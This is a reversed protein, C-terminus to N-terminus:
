VSYWAIGEYIWGLDILNDREEESMTFHWAGSTGNNWANPNHLRYMARGFNEDASPFAIGETTWGQAELMNKEDVDRTYLHDGHESNYLRYIADGITPSIFGAGEFNWGANVLNLAEEQSGTYFHEGNNPNYLRYQFVCGEPAKFQSFDIQEKNSDNSSNCEVTLYIPILESAYDTYYDANRKESFVELTYDGEELEAPITVDINGSTSAGSISMDAIRGYRIMNGYSDLLIASIYEGTGLNAGSYTITVRDGAAVSGSAGRSASFARSKDLLTLKWASVAMDTTPITVLADAGVIGSPKGDVAASTFIVSSLNINFAPRVGFSNSVPFGYVVVRGVSDVVAVTRASSGPSRLWYGNLEENYIGRRYANGLIDAEKTSLPWLFAKNNANDADSIGDSLDYTFDGPNFIEKFAEAYLRREQIVGREKETFISEIYNPATGYYADIVSKIDSSMYANNSRNTTYTIGSALNDLSLLTMTGSECVVGSGDYGITLWKHKGDAGYYVVPATTVRDRRGKDYTDEESTLTPILISTGFHMTEISTFGKDISEVISDLSSVFGTSYDYANGFGNVYVVFPMTSSVHRGLLNRYCAHDAEYYANDYKSIVLNNNEDCREAATKVDTEAMDYVDLEFVKIKSDLNPILSSIKGVYNQTNYCTSISGFILVYINGDGPIFSALRGDRVDQVTFGYETMNFSADTAYVHITYTDASSAVGIGIVFAMIGALLIKFLKKM